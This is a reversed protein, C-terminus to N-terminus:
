RAQVAAGAGGAPTSISPEVSTSTEFQAMAVASSAMQRLVVPGPRGVCRTVTRSQVRLDRDEATLSPLSLLAAIWSM